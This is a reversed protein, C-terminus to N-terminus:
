IVGCQRTFLTYGLTSPTFIAIRQAPRSASVRKAKRPGAPVFVSQKAKRQTAKSQLVPQLVHEDILEGVKVHEHPVLVTLQNSCVCRKRDRDRQTDRHTERCTERERERGRQTTHRDTQRATERHRRERERERETHTHTHTHTHTTTTPHPTSTSHSESCRRGTTPHLGCVSLCKAESAVQVMQCM